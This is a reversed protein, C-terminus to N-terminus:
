KPNIATHSHHYTGAGLRSPALTHPSQNHYRRRYGNRHTKFGLRFTVFSSRVSNSHNVDCGSLKAAENAKSVLRGRRARTGPELLNMDRCAADYFSSM